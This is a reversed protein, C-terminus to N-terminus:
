KLDYFFEKGRTNIYGPKGNVVVIAYGDRFNYALSYKEPIVARCNSNVYGWFGDKNRYPILGNGFEGIQTPKTQFQGAVYYNSDLIRVDSMYYGIAGLFLSDGLQRAASYLPSFRKKRDLFFYDWGIENRSKIIAKGDRFEKEIDIYESYDTGDNVFGSLAIRGSSDVFELVVTKIKQGAGNRSKSVYVAALGESFIGAPQVTDALKLTEGRRNIYFYKGGSIGMLFGSKFYVSSTDFDPKRIWRGEQDIIGLKKGVSVVALGESFNEAADFLMGFQQKGRHDIYFSAGSANKVPCVGANFRGYNTYPGAVFRGKVDILIAGTDTKVFAVGNEFFETFSYKPEIVIKGSTDSYGWSDSIRFPVLMSQAFAGTFATFLLPLLLKM